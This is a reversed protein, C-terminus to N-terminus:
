LGLLGLAATRTLEARFPTVLARDQASATQVTTSLDPLQGKQLAEAARAFDVEPLGLARNVGQRVQAYREPSMDAANLADAQAQRAQGISSGVSGLLNVVTLINPTQGNQIDTWVQQVGSLSPGLAGAVKRRVEVFREVDARTLAAGAQPGSAPTDTGPGGTNTPTQTQTQTQGPLRWAELFSRAPQILFFWALAGLLGVVLLSGGGCGLCGCGLGRGRM